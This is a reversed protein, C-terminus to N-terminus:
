EIPVFGSEDFADEAVEVAHHPFVVTQLKTCGFFAWSGIRRLSEPLTVSELEVRDEFALAEIEVVGEPITVTRVYYPIMDSTIVQTGVPINVHRSGFAAREIEDMLDNFQGNAYRKEEILADYFGDHESFVIVHSEDERAGLQSKLIAFLLGRAILAQGSYGDGIYRRRVYQWFLHASLCLAENLEGNSQLFTQTSLFLIDDSMVDYTGAALREGFLGRIRFAFLGEGLTLTRTDVDARREHTFTTPPTRDRFAHDEVAASRERDGFMLTSWTETYKEEYGEGQWEESRVDKRAYADPNSKAIFEFYKM